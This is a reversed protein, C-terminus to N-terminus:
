TGVKIAGLQYGLAELAATTGDYAARRIGPEDSAGSITVNIINQAGSAANPTGNSNAAGAAISTLTTSLQPPAVVDAMSAQVDGAGANIGQVFGEVTYGGLEAMVKSPSNIKLVSTVTSIIDGGLGSIASLVSGAKSTIGELLGAILDSGADYLWSGAGSFIQVIGEAFSTAVGILGMFSAATDYMQTVIGVLAAIVYAGAAVVAGLAAGLGKMAMIAGETSTSSGGIAANLSQLPVIAVSFVEGFARGFEKVGPVVVSTITNGVDALVGMIEGFGGELDTATFADLAQTATAAIGDLLSLLGQGSTTAPDLFNAIRNGLNILNSGVGEQNLSMFLREASNQIQKFAGEVTNTNKMQALEGLAGGTGANKGMNSVAQLVATVGQDATIKGSQLAAQLEKMDKSGTVKQLAEQLGPVKVQELVEGTVKGQKQMKSLVDAIQGTQATSDVAKIDQLAAAIKVADGQNFGGKLLSTLSAGVDVTSAGVNRALNDLEAFTAKAEGGSGQIARLAFMTDSKAKGMAFAFEAGMIALNSIVVVIAATLAFAATATVAFAAAGITGITGMAGKVKDVSEKHKDLFESAESIKQAVNLVDGAAKPGFTKSIGQIMNAFMSAGKGEVMSMNAASKTLAKDFDPTLKDFMGGAGAGKAAKMTAAMKDIASTAQKAPGTVKDILEVIYQAASM